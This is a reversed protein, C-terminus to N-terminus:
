SRCAMVAVLSLVCAMLSDVHCGPPEQRARPLAAFRKDCLLPRYADPNQDPPLLGSKQWWDDFAKALQAIDFSLIQHHVVARRITHQFAKRQKRTLQDLRLTIHDERDAGLLGRASTSALDGIGTTM